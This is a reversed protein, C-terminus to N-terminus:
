GALGAYHDGIGRHGAGGGGIMVAEIREIGRRVEVKFPEVDPVITLFLTNERLIRAQLQKVTVREREFPRAPWRAHLHHRGRPGVLLWLSLASLAAIISTTIIM